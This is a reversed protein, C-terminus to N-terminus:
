PFAGPRSPDIRLQAQSPRRSDCEGMPRGPVARSCTMRSVGPAPGPRPNPEGPSRLIRTILGQIVTKSDSRLSLDGLSDKVAAQVTSNSALDGAAGGASSVVGGIGKSLLDIGSGIQSFLFFLFFGAAIVLGM